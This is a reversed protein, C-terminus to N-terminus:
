CRKLAMPDKSSRLWPCWSLGLAGAPSPVRLGVCGRAHLFWSRVRQSGSAESKFHDSFTIRLKRLTLLWASGQGPQAVPPLLKPAAEVSPVCFFSPRVAFGRPVAHEAHPLLVSRSTQSRAAVEGLLGSLGEQPHGKVQCGTAPLLGDMQSAPFCGTCSPRSPIRHSGTLGPPPTVLVLHLHAQLAALPVAHPHPTGCVDRDPPPPRALPSPSLVATDGPAQRVASSM